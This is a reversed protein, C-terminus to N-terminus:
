GALVVGDGEPLISGAPANVRVRSGAVLCHMADDVGTICPIDLTEALLAAPHLPDHSALVLAGALTLWPLWGPECQDLVVVDGPELTSLSWASHLLRVPGSAQTAVRPTGNLAPRGRQDLRVGYAVQDIMWDPAGQCASTMYRLKREGLKEPTLRRTSDRDGQWLSWLEDFYVFHIDEARRLQQRAVLVQAMAALLHRLQGGLSERLAAAQARWRLQRFAPATSPAPLRCLRERREPSLAALTALEAPAEDFRVLVPDAGPGVTARRLAEDSQGLQVLAARHPPPLMSALLLAADHGPALASPDATCCTLWGELGALREGVRDLRMLQRWHGNLDGPAPPNAACHAREAELQRLQMGTLWPRLGDRRWYRQRWVVADRPRWAPPVGRLLHQDGGQELLRLSFRSNSYLHCHQRRYPEINALDQWGLREGLPRWFGTKFWRGALTYWLPSVAQEWIGLGARRSWAEEPRPLSGVPLTQVMWLQEGDFVWECAQPREFHRRLQAALTSFPEAGVTSALPSDPESSFAIGGHGHLILREQGAASGEVVGEVIVHELDQRVPHRTFLVGAAVRRPLAQVLVDDTGEEVGEEARSFRQLLAAALAADSDLNVLSQRQSGPTAPGQHLVWYRMSDDGPLRELASQIDALTPVGTARAHWAPPVPLGMAAWQSAAPAGSAPSPTLAEFKM